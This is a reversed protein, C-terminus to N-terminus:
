YLKSPLPHGLGPLTPVADAAIAAESCGPSVLVVVLLLLVASMAVKKGQGM